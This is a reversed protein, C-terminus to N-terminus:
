DLVDSLFKQTGGFSIREDLDKIDAFPLVM